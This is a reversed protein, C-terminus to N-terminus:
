DVKKRLMEFMSFNIPALDEIFPTFMDEKELNEQCDPNVARFTGHERCFFDKCDEYHCQLSFLHLLNVDKTLTDITFRFNLNEINGATALSVEKKRKEEKEVLPTEQSITPINEVQGDPEQIKGGVAERLVVSSRKLVDANQRLKLMELAWETPKGGRVDAALKSSDGRIKFNGLRPCISQCFNPM